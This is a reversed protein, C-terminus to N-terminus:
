AHLCYIEVVRSLISDHLETCKQSQAAWYAALALQEAAVEITRFSARAATVVEHAFAPVEKRMHCDAVSDSHQYRQATPREHTVDESDLIGCDSQPHHDSDGNQEANPENTVRLYQPKRQVKPQVRWLGFIEFRAAAM